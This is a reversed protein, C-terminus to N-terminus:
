FNFIEKRYKDIYGENLKEGNINASVFVDPQKGNLAMQRIAESIMSHLAIVGIATSTPCVKGVGEVNIAADGTEGCNDIVIDAAEFLKQGSSHRSEMAKSHNLNTIAIVIMGRKKAEMAMEICVANRGSNSAIIMIDGTKVPYRKIIESAYGEMRELFTSKGAGSHLMLGEDLVPNVRVLGGARYFIELSLLHSHGTGFSYIMGGDMLCRSIAASAELLRDSESTKFYAILKEIYEIYKFNYGM